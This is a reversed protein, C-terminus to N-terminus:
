MRRIFPVVASSSERTDVGFTYRNLLDLNRVRNASPIPIRTQYGRKLIDIDFKLHVNGVLHKSCYPLLSLAKDSLVRPPSGFTVAVESSPELAVPLRSTPASPAFDM